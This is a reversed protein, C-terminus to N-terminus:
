PIGLGRKCSICHVKFIYFKFIGKISLPNTSSCHRSAARPLPVSLWQLAHCLSTVAAPVPDKGTRCIPLKWGTGALTM